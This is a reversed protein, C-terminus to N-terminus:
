GVEDFGVTVREAGARLVIARTIRELGHPVV